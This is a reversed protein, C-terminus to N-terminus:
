VLDEPLVTLARFRQAMENNAGHVTSHKPGEYVLVAQITEHDDLEVVSFLGM